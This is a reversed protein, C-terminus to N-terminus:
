TAGHSNHHNVITLISVMPCWLIRHYEHVYLPQNKPIIAIFRSTARDDTGPNGNKPLASSRIRWRQRAAESRRGRAESRSGRALFGNTVGM